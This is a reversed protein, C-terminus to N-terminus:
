RNDGSGKIVNRALRDQLKDHNLQMLQELSVNLETAMRAVYWMVDGLEAVLKDHKEQLFFGNDDRIMKKVVNAVEGAEGALGLATYVIGEDKPYIATTETWDQYEKAQM